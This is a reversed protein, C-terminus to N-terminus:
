AKTPKVFGPSDSSGATFSGTQGNLRPLNSTLRYDWSGAETPAFRITYRRDGDRFAAMLYTRRPSRFEARLEFNEPNEGPALDFAMDCSSWAPAGSCGPAQGFVPAVLLVVGFLVKM